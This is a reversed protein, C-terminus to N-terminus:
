DAHKKYCRGQGNNHGGKYKDELKHGIFAGAMSGLFTHGGVKKGGFYGAAGGALAGALGREGEQPANPDTPNGGYYQQQGYPNNPDTPYPQQNYAGQQPFQGSPSQSPYQGQAAPAGGYYDPTQGHQYGGQAPPGYGAAQQAYQQSYSSPQQGYQNPDAGYPSQQQYSYGGQQPPYQGPATSGYQGQPPAYGQGPPPSQYQSQDPYGGYQQQQPPPYGQGSAPSGYHPPYQNYPDSM